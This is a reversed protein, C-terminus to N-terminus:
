PLIHAIVCGFVGLHHLVDALLYVHGGELEVGNLIEDGGYAKGLLHDTGVAEVAAAVSM